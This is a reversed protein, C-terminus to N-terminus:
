VKTKHYYIKSSVFIDSDYKVLNLIFILVNIKADDPNPVNDEESTMKHESQALFVTRCIRFIKYISENCIHLLMTKNGKM